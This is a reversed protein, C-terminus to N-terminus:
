FVRKDLKWFVSRMVAVLLRQGLELQDPNLERMLASVHETEAQVTSTPRAKQVELQANRAAKDYNERATALELQRDHLESIKDRLQQVLDAAATELEAVDTEVAQM